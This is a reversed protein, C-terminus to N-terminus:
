RGSSSRGRVMGAEGSFGGNTAIIRAPANAEAHPPDGPISEAPPWAWCAGTTVTVTESTVLLRV